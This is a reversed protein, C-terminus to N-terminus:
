AAPTPVTALVVVAVPVPETAVVEAPLDLQVRKGRRRRPPRPAVVVPDLLRALQAELLRDFDDM